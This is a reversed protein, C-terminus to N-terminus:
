AGLIRGMLTFAFAHYGADILFLKMSRAEFLYTVGMATAVWGIGALGGASTGWVRTPSCLRSSRQRSM